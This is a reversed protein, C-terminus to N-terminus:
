LLRSHITCNSQNKYAVHELFFELKVAGNTQDLPYITSGFSLKRYRYKEELIRIFCFPWISIKTKITKCKIESIKFVQDCM